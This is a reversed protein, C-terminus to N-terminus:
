QNEVPMWGICWINASDLDSPKIQDMTLPRHVGNIYLMASHNFNSSMNAVTGDPNYPRVNVYDSGFGVVTWHISDESMIVPFGHNTAHEIHLYQGVGEQTRIEMSTINDRIFDSTYEGPLTDHSLSGNNATIVAGTQSNKYLWCESYGNGVSAGCTVGWNAFTEDPTILLIGTSTGTFSYNLRFHGLDYTTVSAINIPTHNQYDIIVWQDTNRNYRIAGGILRIPVDDSLSRADAEPMELILKWGNETEETRATPQEGLGIMRISADITRNKKLEQILWDLNLDHFNTYPFQEGNFIVPM